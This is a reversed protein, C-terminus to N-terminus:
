GNAIDYGQKKYAAIEHALPLPLGGVEYEHDGQVGASSALHRLRDERVQAFLQYFEPAAPHFIMDTDEKYEAFSIQMGIHDSLDTLADEFTSGYGRLDMELALAAWENNERYGLVSITVGCFDPKKKPM